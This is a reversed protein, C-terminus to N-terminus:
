FEIDDLNDWLSDLEKQSYIKGRIKVQDSKKNKLSEKHKRYIERHHALREKEKLKDPRAMLSSWSSSAEVKSSWLVPMFSRFLKFFILFSICAWVFSGLNIGLLTIGNNSFGFINFIAGFFQDLHIFALIDSIIPCYFLLFILANQVAELIPIYFPALSFRMDVYGPKEFDFNYSGNSSVLPENYYTFNFDFGLSLSSSSSVFNSFTIYFYIYDDFLINNVEESSVYIFYNNILSGSYNVNYYDVGRRLQYSVSSVFQLSSLYDYNYLVLTNNTRYVPRNILFYFDNFLSQFSDIDGIPIYGGGYSTVSYCYFLDSYYSKRTTGDYISYFSSDNFSLSSDLNFYYSRKQLQGSSTGGEVFGIYRFFNLLSDSGSDLYDFLNLDFTFNSSSDMDVLSSLNETLVIQKSHSYSGNSSFSLTNYNGSFTVGGFYVLYNGRIRFQWVGYSVGNFTVKQSSASLSIAQNSYSPSGEYNFQKFCFNCNANNSLDSVSFNYYFLNGSSTYDSTDNSLFSFIIDGSWKVCTLYTGDITLSEISSISYNGLNSSDGYVTGDYNFTQSTSASATIPSIFVCGLILMFCAISVFIKKIM